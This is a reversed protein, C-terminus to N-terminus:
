PTAGSAVQATRGEFEVCGLFDDLILEGAIEAVESVGSLGCAVM